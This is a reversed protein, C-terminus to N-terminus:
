YEKTIESRNIMKIIGEKLTLFKSCFLNPKLKHSIIIICKDQFNDFINKLILNETKSDMASTAEDLILVSFSRYLARAIGISQIQGGSLTVGREGLRTNEKSPLSDILKELNAIRIAKYYNEYNIDKHYNRLTINNIISDDFIFINQPVNAVCNKLNTSGSSRKLVKKGNIIVDGKTPKLLGLIIDILTSKGSGIKGIIALKTDNNINLNINKLLYEKDAKYKFYVKNLKINEFKFKKLFYSSNKYTNGLDKNKINEELYSLVSKVQQDQASIMSFNVFLSNLIPLLKQIALLYVGITSLLVTSNNTTFNFYISFSLFLILVLAEVPYKVIISQYIYSAKNNRKKISEKLFRNIHLEYTNNLKVDRISSLSEQLYKLELDTSKNINKSYKKFSKKNFKLISLYLLTFFGILTITLTKNLFLIVFIISVTILINSIIQITYSISSVSYDLLQTIVTTINSFSLNAFEEYNLLLANEFINKALYNGISASYKYSVYVNLSRLITSILITILYLIFVILINNRSIDYEWFYFNLKILSNNSFISTIIPYFTSLVILEFISSTFALFLILYSIRKQRKNIYKWFKFINTFSTNNM